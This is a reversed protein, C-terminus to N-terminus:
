LIYTNQLGSKGSLLPIPQLLQNKNKANVIFILIDSGSIRTWEDTKNQITMKCHPPLKNNYTIATSYQRGLKM